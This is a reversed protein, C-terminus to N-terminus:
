DASRAALRACASAALFSASSATCDRACSVRSVSALACSRWGRRLRAPSNLRVYTLMILLKQARALTQLNLGSECIYVVVDSEGGNFSLHEHPGSWTSRQRKIKRAINRTKIQEKHYLISISNSEQLTDLISYIENLAEDEVLPTMPVWIVGGNLSPPLWNVNLNETPSLM